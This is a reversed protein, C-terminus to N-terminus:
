MPLTSGPPVNVGRTRSTPWYADIEGFLWERGVFGETLREIDHGFDIATLRSLEQTDM